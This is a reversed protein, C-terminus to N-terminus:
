KSSGGKVDRDIPSIASLTERMSDDYFRYQRRGARKASYLAQDAAHFLKEYEGGVENTCAVGMSVSLPFDKYHGTIAGFIRDVLQEADTKYELFILFEDGGVRAM